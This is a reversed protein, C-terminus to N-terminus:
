SFSNDQANGSNSNPLRLNRKLFRSKLRSAESMLTHAERNSQAFYSVFPRHLKVQQEVM